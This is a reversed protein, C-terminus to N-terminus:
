KLTAGNEVLLKVIEFNGVTCTFMLATYGVSNTANVFVGNKIPLEVINGCKKECAMMLLSFDEIKTDVTAGQSILFRVNAEDDCRIAEFLCLNLM